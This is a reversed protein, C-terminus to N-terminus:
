DFRSRINAGAIKSECHLNRLHNKATTEEEGQKRFAHPIWGKGIIDPDKVALSM